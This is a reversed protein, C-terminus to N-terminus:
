LPRTLYHAEVVYTELAAQAEATPQLARVFGCGQWFHEADQVCVLAAHKLGLVRGTELATDVLRRGLGLGKTEPAVALDHLYLCDPHTAIEFRSGLASLKGLQGPYTMLYAQVRGAVEAVWATRPATALRARIVTSSENMEPSYCQSQIRLVAALDRAQMLRLRPAPM